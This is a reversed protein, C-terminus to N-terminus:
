VRERCSARGIELISSLKAIEESFGTRLLSFTEEDIRAREVTKRNWHNLRNLVGFSKRLGIRRKIQGAAVSFHTLPLLKRMKRENHREFTQIQILPINLFELIKQYVASAHCSMEELCVICVRNSPVLKTVDQIQDSLLCCRYYDGLIPDIAKPPIGKGRRRAPLAQWCQKFKLINEEGNFVREQHLSIAMEIPNRVCIIFKADPSYDVIKPITNLRHVLYSTSAEGIVHHLETAGDFLQEYEYITRDPTKKRERPICPQSFFHPEKPTAMFINPHKSLWSAISTTGCKPAGLIFLNPKPM